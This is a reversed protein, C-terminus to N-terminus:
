KGYYPRPHPVYPAWAIVTHRIEQGVRGYFKKGDFLHKSVERIWPRNPDCGTAWCEYLSNGGKEMWEEIPLRVSCPIWDIEELSNRPMEYAGFYGRKEYVITTISPHRNRYVNVHKRWGHSASLEKGMVKVFAKEAEADEPMQFVIMRTRSVIM